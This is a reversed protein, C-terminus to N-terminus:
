PRTEATRLSVRIGHLDDFVAEGATVARLRLGAAVEGIRVVQIRADALELIVFGGQGQTVTGVLRPRVPVVAVPPTPALASATPAPMPRTIDFPAKEAAVRILDADTPTIIAIRPATPIVVPPATDARGLRQAHVVAVVDVGLAALLAIGAARASLPWDRIRTDM